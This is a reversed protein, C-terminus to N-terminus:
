GNRGGETIEFWVVKGGSSVSDIGWRDTLQDLLHLGRGTPSLEQFHRRVPRAASGDSVEVRLGDPLESVIVSGGTGAHLVANTVVESLCLLLADVRGQDSCRAAFARRVMRPSAADSDFVLRLLPENQAVLM